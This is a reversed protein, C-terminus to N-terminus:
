SVDYGTVGQDRNSQMEIKDGFEKELLAKAAQYKSYYGWGGCWQIAVTVKKVNQPAEQAM